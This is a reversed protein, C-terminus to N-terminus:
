GVIRPILATSKVALVTNPTALAFRQLFHSDYFSLKPIPRKAFMRVGFQMLLDIPSINTYFSYPSMEVLGGFSSSQYKAKFWQYVIVDM